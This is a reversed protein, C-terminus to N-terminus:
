GGRIFFSEGLDFEEIELVKKKIIRICCDGCGLFYFLWKNMGRREGVLIMFELIVFFWELM